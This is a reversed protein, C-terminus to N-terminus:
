KVARVITLKGTKEGTSYIEPDYMAEVYPQPITFEGVTVARVTYSYKVERSIEGSFLIIRDDRIDEYAAPWNNPPTYNLEGRSTLRVNEIEFGSPLIDVLVLNDLNVNNGPTLTLTVVALEGQVVSSLNLSSGSIDYFGRKIGVGKKEPKAQSVLPTGEATMNYYIKNIGSNSLTLAMGSLDTGKYTHDISTIEKIIKNGSYLEAKIESESQRQSKAIAILALADDHTTGFHGNIVIEELRSIIQSIRSDSPDIDGLANLYISLRKVISDYDGGLSRPFNELMFKSPLITKATKKDGILGYASALRCKETYDLDDLRNAKLYEMSERDPKGILARLYLAYTNKEGESGEERRDLRGKSANDQIEILEYVSKMINRDVEYGMNAAEILCNAAYLSAYQNYTREGPWIAFQGGPLAMSEIKKIGEQIFYDAQGAEHSLFGIDKASEKYYLMSLVASSTQEICGYPYQIVYDLAGLFKVTEVSAGSLRVAQGYKIWGSPVSIMISKGPRLEGSKNVTQLARTPRIPLETESESVQGNGRAEFKFIAKGADQGAKVYFYIMKQGKEELTVTQSDNGKVTVPGEINLKVQIEAKKGLLNYVRLPIEMNDEPALVRPLSYSLVIPDAITVYKSASGFRNRDAAIAIIRVKGNFQPLKFRYQVTGDAAPKLVGSFLAMSKIRKASVPNIHRRTNDYEGEDGGIALKDAKINPLIADFISYLRTLLGRKSYFLKFPDPTEFQTIQLIGEDVAALVVGCNPSASPISLRVNIGDKSQVTEDSQINLDLKKNGPKIELSKIGLASMPLNKINESPKRIVYASVYVNPQFEETVPINVVAKNDVLDLEKSYFVKERAINLFLKGPISSRITAVANEGASYKDKNFSISLNEASSLDSSEIGPGQVFIKVATRMTEENGLYITYYGPEKPVFSFEGNKNINVNKVLIGEEYSESEFDYDKRAYKKLINYHIKHKVFLQINTATKYSGEPDIAVYSLKVAEGALYNDKKDTKLGFYIPYKDVPIVKVASVPRGGEDYVETYIRASLASPPFSAEPLQMTYEKEGKNDLVSEGLDFSEEAESRQEDNFTYDNFNPHTFIRSIFRVKTKLKNGAAPPGFLMRAKVIFKLEDGPKLRKDSARIDAQIKNPIFEEVKLETSGITINDGIKLAINYLGTKAYDPFDVEFALMGNPPIKKNQILYKEGAPDTVNLLVNIQEPLSLDGNRVIATIYAKEGPRYVGREPTLFAQMEKKSLNRGSTDFRSQDMIDRSFMLYSFDEGKEAILIFPKFDYQNEQWNPFICEGDPGTVRSTIVQNEYSVLKVTVGEESTLNLISHVKVILDQGSHVAMIGLDTCLIVRSDKSNRSNYGEEEENYEGEGGNGKPDSVSVMFLGKYEMNQFKKLNIYHKVVDNIEGGEVDVTKYIVPKTYQYSGTNHLFYVLNNRFVKDIRVGFKDLNLTNIQIDMNGNLPLINGSDAFDVGPRLDSMRMSDKFDNKLVYGTKSLLGEKILITYARNPKFDGKFVAYCYETEINYPVLNSQEDHITVYKKLMDESVPKNFLVSLYTNGSAPWKEARIVSLHEVESLGIKEVTDNQLPKKGNVCPLGRKVTLTIQSSHDKRDFGAARIYFRTPVNAPEITFGLDKNEFRVNLHKKLEESQVPASFNIEAILEKELNKILDYNYFLKISTVKFIPTHFSFTKGWVIKGKKSFYKTQLKVKYKTSPSLEEEPLFVLTKGEEFRYSGKIAPHIKLLDIGPKIFKMGPDIHVNSYETNNEQITEEAIDKLLDVTESFEIKIATKLNITGQPSWKKVSVSYFSSIISWIIILVVAASTIGVTINRVNKNTKISKLYEFIKKTFNGFKEFFPTTLKKSSHYLGAAASKFNEAKLLPVNKFAWIKNHLIFLISGATLIAALISIFYPAFDILAFFYVICLLAQNILWAALFNGFKTTIIRNILMLALAGATGFFLVLLLLGLGSYIDGKHLSFHVCEVITIIGTLIAAFRAPVKFFKEEM